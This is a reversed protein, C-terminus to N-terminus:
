FNGKAVEKLIRLDVAQEAVIEKLHTNERELAKLRRLAETDVGGYQRRWRHYTAESVALGMCADAISAGGSLLADAERLKRVIQEPTHRKRM